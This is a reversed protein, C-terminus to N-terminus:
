SDLDVDQIKKLLDEVKTRVQTKAEREHELEEKLSLIEYELSEKKQMLADLKQALQNLIDMNEQMLTDMGNLGTVTM